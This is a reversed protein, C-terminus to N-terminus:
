RSPPAEVPQPLSQREVHRFSAARPSASALRTGCGWAGRERQLPSMLGSYCAGRAVQM